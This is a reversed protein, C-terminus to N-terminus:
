RTQHKCHLFVTLFQSASKGGREKLLCTEGFELPIVTTTGSVIIFDSM